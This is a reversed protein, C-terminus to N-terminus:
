RGGLRRMFRRLGSWLNQHEIQALARRAEDCGHDLELAQEFSVAADPLGLAAQCLGREVHVPAYHPLAAAAASAHSLAQSFRGYRRLVRSAELEMWARLSAGACEALARGLCHTAMRSERALLVEGRSLWALPTAGRQSMAEDSCALAENLRRMRAAAIAKAALLDPHHPFMELAKDAWICAEKHEDLETLIRVQMLWCEILMRDRELARSYDRLAAELHGQRFEELGAAQFFAADRVPTGNGLGASARRRVASGAEFELNDFRSV